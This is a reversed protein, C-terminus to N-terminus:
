ASRTENTEPAEPLTKSRKLGLKLISSRRSSHSGEIRAWKRSEALKVSDPQAPSSLARELMLQGKCSSRRRTIMELSPLDEEDISSDLSKGLGPDEKMAMPTPLSKPPVEALNMATPLKRLRQRDRLPICSVGKTLSDMDLCGHRCCFRDYYWCCVDVHPDDKNEWNGELMENAQALFSTEEEKTDAYCSLVVKFKEELMSANDDRTRWKSIFCCYALSIVYGDGGYFTMEAAKVAEKLYRLAAAYERRKYFLKGLTYGIFFRLLPDAPRLQFAETILAMGQEKRNVQYALAGRTYFIISRCVVDLGLQKQLAEIKDLHRLADSYCGTLGKLEAIRLHVIVSCPHIGRVDAKLKKVVKQALPSVLSRPKEGLKTCVSLAAQYSEMAEKKKGEQDVYTEGLATLTSVLREIQMRGTLCEKAKGLYKSAKILQGLCRYANGLSSYCSGLAQRSENDDAAILMAKVDELEDVADKPQGQRVWVDARRIRLQACDSLSKLKDALTLSFDYLKLLDDCSWRFLKLLPEARLVIDVFDGSLESPVPDCTLVAVFNHKDNAYERLASGTEDSYYRRIITNLRRSYHRYYRRKTDNLQCSKEKEKALMHLFCRFVSNLCLRGDDQRFLLSKRALINGIDRDVIAEVAETTFNGPFVALCLAKVRVEEGGLSELATSFRNDIRYQSALFLKDLEKKLWKWPEPRITTMKQILERASTRRYKILAIFHSLLMPHGQSIKALTAAQEPTACVDDSNYTSFESQIFTKCENIDLLNVNLNKMRICPVELQSCSTILLKTKNSYRLIDTCFKLLNPESGSHVQDILRDAGDLVVLQDQNSSLLGNTLAQKLSTEKECDLSQLFEEKLQCSSDTRSVDLYLIKWEQDLCAQCVAIAAVSKGIGPLGFLCCIDYLSFSALIDAKLAQRRCHPPLWSWHSERTGSERM